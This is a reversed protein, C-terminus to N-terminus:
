TRASRRSATLILKLAVPVLLAVPMALILASTGALAAGLLSPIAALVAIPLFAATILNQRYSATRFRSTGTALAIAIALVGTPIATALRANHNLTLLWRAPQILIAEDNSVRATVLLQVVAALANAATATMAAITIRHDLTIPQHEYPKAQGVLEHLQM